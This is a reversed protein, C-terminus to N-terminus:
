PAKADLTTGEAVNLIITNSILQGGGWFNQELLREQGPRPGPCDFHVRLAYKGLGPLDVQGFPFKLRFCNEAGKIRELSLEVDVPFVTFPQITHVFPNPGANREAYEPITLKLAEPAPADKQLAVPRIDFAAISRVVEGTAAQGTVVVIENATINGFNVTLRQTDGDHIEMAEPRLMLRMGNVAPSGGTLPLLSRAAAAISRESDGEVAQLYPRIADGAALIKAKAIAADKRSANAADEIWQKVEEDPPPEPSPKEGHNGFFAGAAAVAPAQASPVRTLGEDHAGRLVHWQGEQGRKLFLLWLTDGAEVNPMDDNSVWIIDRGGRLGGSLSRV